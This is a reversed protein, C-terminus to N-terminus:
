LMSLDSQEFDFKCFYSNHISKIHHSHILIFINTLLKLILKQRNPEYESGSSSENAAELVSTMIHITVPCQSKIFMIPIPNQIVNMAM